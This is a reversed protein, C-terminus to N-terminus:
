FNDKNWTKFYKYQETTITIKLLNNNKFLLKSVDKFKYMSVLENYINVYKFLMSFYNHITSNIRETENGFGSKQKTRFETPIAEAKATTYSDITSSLIGIKKRLTGILRIILDSPKIISILNNLTFLLNEIQRFHENISIISEIFLKNQIIEQKQQNLIDNIIIDTLDFVKHFTKEITKEITIQDKSTFNEKTIIRM